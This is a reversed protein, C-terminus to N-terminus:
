HKFNFEYSRSCNTNPLFARLATQNTDTQNHTAVTTELDQGVVQQAADLQRRVVVPQGGRAVLRRGGVVVVPHACQM